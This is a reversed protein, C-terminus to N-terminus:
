AVNLTNSEAFCLPLIFDLAVLGSDEVRQMHACACLCVCM